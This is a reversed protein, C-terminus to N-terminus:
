NSYCETKDCTRQIVNEAILKLDAFSNAKFVDQPSSAIQRLEDDNANAIGVCLISIQQDKVKKAAEKTQEPYDSAGDTMLIMIKKAGNRAGSVNPDLMTSNLIYNLARDTRTSQRLYPTALIAMKLSESTPNDKFDFMKQVNSGYIIESFLVDSTGITFRETINSAFQLMLKYNEVGISGSSDLVYIIDAKTKCATM